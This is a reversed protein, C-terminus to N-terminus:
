VICEGFVLMFRLDENSLVTAEGVERGKMFSLFPAEYLSGPLKSWVGAYPSFSVCQNHKEM